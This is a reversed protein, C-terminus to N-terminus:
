KKNARDNSICHLTQKNIKVSETECNMTIASVCKLECAFYIYLLFMTSGVEISHFEILTASAM